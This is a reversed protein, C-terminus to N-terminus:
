GKGPTTRDRRRVDDPGVRHAGRGILREPGRPRALDISLTIKNKALQREDGGAGGDGDHADVIEKVDASSTRRPSGRVDVLEAEIGDIMEAREPTYVHAIVEAHERGIEGGSFAAATEPLQDLKRALVVAGHAHGNSMRCKSRLASQASVFGDLLWGASRDYAGIARLRQFQLREALKSVRAVDVTGEDAALKDLVAELDDLPDFM